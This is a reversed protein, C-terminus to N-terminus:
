SSCRPAHQIIPLTIVDWLRSTEATPMRSPSMAERSCEEPLITEFAAQEIDLDIPEHSVFVRLFGVDLKDAQDVSFILPMGGGTGYNISLSKGAQLPATHNEAGPV